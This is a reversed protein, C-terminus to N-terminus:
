IEPLIVCSPFDPGTFISHHGKNVTQVPPAPFEIERLNKSSVTFVLIEGEHWVMGTPWFVTEVKVVEGPVLMQRNKLEHIMDFMEDNVIERCSVRIRAEAGPYKVNLMPREAPVGISDEKSVYAFLDMDDGEDTSVYLQMRIYGCLAMEKSVRLRFSVGEGQGNEALYTIKENREPVAERLTCDAASLYMKKYNTRPVPFDEEVQNIVDSGSPDYLSIRVKPTNPWDNQIGKLYYDFFKRVEDRYVPSYQDYWEHTNHVRLWKDRSTAKCWTRLTGYPHVNSDWSAVMYMPLEIKSFDPRKEKDWYDNAYPYKNVMAFVNEIMGNKNYRMMSNIGLAFEPTPIGGRMMCDRLLDSLGEWPALAKLHPPQQAAAFYQCIALWSNGFMGVNGTCWPQAALWEIADCIDMGEQYGYYMMDGDSNTAGRSDIVALIYKNCVWFDPDPGEMTNLGTMKSLDLNANNIYVHYYNPPDIKGYPTWILIVPYKETEDTPRFIDAYVVAGDRLTVPTDKDYIMDCVLPRRGEKCIQGKRLAISRTDVEPFSWTETHQGEVEYFEVADFMEYKVTKSAM